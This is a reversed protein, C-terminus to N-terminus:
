EYTEGTEREKLTLEKEKRAKKRIEVLYERTRKPDDTFELEGRHFLSKVGQSALQEPTIEIEGGPSVDVMGIRLLCSGANTVAIVVVGELAENNTETNTENTTDKKAGAM